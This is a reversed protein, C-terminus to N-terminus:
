ALKEDYIKIRNRGRFKAGVYMARDAYNVLEVDNAALRPYESIGGSITIKIKLDNVAFIHEEIKNRIREAIVYAEDSDLDPLIVTFEEGGYRAVIDDKRVSSKILDAVEKLVFDGVTHGYTDNVRKFYDIDFIM